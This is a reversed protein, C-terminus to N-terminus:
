VWYERKQYYQDYSQVSVDVDYADAGFCFKSRADQLGGSVKLYYATEADACVLHVEFGGGREAYGDEIRGEAVRAGYGFEGDGFYDSQCALQAVSAGFEM